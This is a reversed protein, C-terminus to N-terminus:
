DGESSGAGAYAKNAVELEGAVVIASRVEEGLGKGSKGYVVLGAEWVNEGGEWEDVLRDGGASGTQDTSVGGWDGGREEIMMEKQATPDGKGRM